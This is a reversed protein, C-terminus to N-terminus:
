FRHQVRRRSQLVTDGARKMMDAPSKRTVAEYILAAIVRFPGDEYGTPATASFSEMLYYAEAACHHKLADAREPPEQRVAHLQRIATRQEETFAVKRLAKAAKRFDAATPTPPVNAPRKWTLFLRVRNLSRQVERQVHDALPTPRDGLYPRPDNLEGGKELEAIILTVFDADPQPEASV